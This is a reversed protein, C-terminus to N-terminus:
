DLGLVGTTGECLANPPSSLELEKRKKKSDSSVASKAEM